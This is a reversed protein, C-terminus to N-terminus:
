NRPSAQGDFYSRFKGYGERALERAPEILSAWNASLREALWKNGEDFSLRRIGFAFYCWYQPRVIQAIADANSLCVEELSGSGIQIPSSHTEVAQVVSDILESSYGHGVLIDRAMDASVAAHQPLTTFDRIASFDHLYAALTVVEAEAGLYKALQVGYDAVVAVHQDFFSPGLM